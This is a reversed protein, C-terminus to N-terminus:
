ENEAEVSPPPPHDIGAPRKVGPFVRYRNYLLSPPDWPRDPRTRFIDGGGPNKKREIGSGDLGYGTVIGVSSGPGGM